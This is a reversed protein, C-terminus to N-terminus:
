DSSSPSSTSETSSSTSDSSRDEAYDRSHSRETATPNSARAESHEPVRDEAFPHRESIERARSAIEYPVLTRPLGSRGESKLSDSMQDSIKRSSEIILRLAAARRSGYRVTFGQNDIVPAELNKLIAIRQRDHGTIETLMNCVLTTTQVHQEQLTTLRERTLTLKERISKSRSNLRFQNITLAIILVSYLALVAQLVTM